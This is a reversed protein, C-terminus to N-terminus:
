IRTQMAGANGHVLVDSYFRHMRLMEEQSLLRNWIAIEMIGFDSRDCYWGNWYDCHNVGLGSGPNLTTRADFVRVFQGNALFRWPAGNQGCFILWDTDLAPVQNYMDTMISLSYRAVGVQGGSHGHAFNRPGALILGKFFGAYRTVSCMTFEQPLASDGFYLEGNTMGVTGRLECIKGAAGNAGTACEEFINRGEADNDGGAIDVWRNASGNWSSYTYRSYLSGPVPFETEALV